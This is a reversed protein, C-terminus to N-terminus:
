RTGLWLAGSGVCRFKETYLIREASTPCNLALGSFLPVLPLGKGEAAGDSLLPLM